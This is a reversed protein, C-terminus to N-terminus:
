RAILGLVVTQFEEEKEEKTEMSKEPMTSVKSSTSALMAQRSPRSSVRGGRMQLKKVFLIEIQNKFCRRGRM